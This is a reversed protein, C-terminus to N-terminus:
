NVNFLVRINDVKMQSKYEDSIVYYYSFVSPEKSEKDKKIDIFSYVLEPRSQYFYFNDTVMVIKGDDKEFQVNDRKYATYGAPIQAFVLVEMNGASLTLNEKNPNEFFPTETQFATLEEQTTVTFVNAFYDFDTDNQNWTIPKETLANYNMKMTSVVM